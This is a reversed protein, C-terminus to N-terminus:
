IRRALMVAVRSGLDVNFTWIKTFFGAAAGSLDKAEDRHKVEDTRCSELIGLVEPHLAETRLRDIQRQYHTDVFTEVACITHFIANASFLSPLAGTLFGALRWVPTLLTRQERGLLTSVLQLHRRESRLHNQAFVRVSPDRSVALIGQYIAVAGVEGAVDSRLDRILWDPGSIAEACIDGPRKALQGSNSNSFMIKNRKVPFNPRANQGVSM